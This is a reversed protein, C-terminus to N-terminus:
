RSSLTSDAPSPTKDHSYAEVAEQAESVPLIRAGSVVAERVIARYFAPTCGFKSPKDSVDHTTLILWGNQSRNQDILTKVADVNGGSKELFYGKLLKFDVVGRNFTQGGGGRCTHFHRAATRKIMVRPEAHPFSFARMSVDPFLRKMEDRNEAISQEFDSQRSTWSNLHSFTHSGIEHGAAIVTALDRATFMEGFPPQTKGMLGLSTYYTARLKHEDLIAAATDAASKPFDDFAFSILPVPNRMQVRRTFFVASLSYHVLRQVRVNL